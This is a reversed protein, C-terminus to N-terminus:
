FWRARFRIPTSLALVRYFDLMPLRKQTTTIKEMDKERGTWKHGNQPSKALSDM